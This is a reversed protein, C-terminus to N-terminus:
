SLLALITTQAHLCTPFDKMVKVRTPQCAIDRGCVVVKNTEAVSRCDESINSLIKSCTLEECNISFETLRFVRVFTTKEFLLSIIASGHPLNPLDIRPCVACRTTSSSAAKMGFSTMVSATRGMIEVVPPPTMMSEVGESLSCM